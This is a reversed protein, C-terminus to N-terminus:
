KEIGKMPETVNWSVLALGALAMAVTPMSSFEFSTIVPLKACPYKSYKLGLKGSVRDVLVVL